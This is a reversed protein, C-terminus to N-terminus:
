RLLRPSPFWLIAKAGNRAVTKLRMPPNKPLCGHDQKRYIIGVVGAPAPTTQLGGRWHMVIKSSGPRNKFLSDTSRM